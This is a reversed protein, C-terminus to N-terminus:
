WVHVTEDPSSWWVVMIKEIQLNSPSSPQYRSTKKTLDPLQRQWTQITHYRSSCWALPSRCSPLWGRAKDTVNGTMTAQDCFLDWRQVNSYKNQMTKHHVGYWWSRHPVREGLINTTMLITTIPNHPRTICIWLWSVQHVNVGSTETTM